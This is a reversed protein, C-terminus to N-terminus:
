ERIHKSFVSYAESVIKQVEEAGASANRDPHFKLSLRRYAKKVEGIKTNVDTGLVYYAWTLEGNSGEGIKSKWDAYPLPSDGAKEPDWTLTKGRKTRSGGSMSNVFDSFSGEAETGGPRTRYTRGGEDDRRAFSQAEASNVRNVKEETQTAFVAGIFGETNGSGNDFANRAGYGSFVDQYDNSKATIHISGDSNFRLDGGAFIKRGGALRLMQPKLNNGHAMKPCIKLQGDETIVWMYELNPDRFNKLVYNPHLSSFVDITNASNGGTSEFEHILNDIDPFRRRVTADIALWSINNMTELPTAAAILSRNLNQGREFSAFGFLPLKMREALRRTEIELPTLTDIFEIEANEASHFGSREITRTEEVTLEVIHRVRTGNKTEGSTYEALITIGRPDPHQHIDLIRGPVMESKGNPKFWFFRRDGRNSIELMEGNATAMTKQLARVIFNRAEDMTKTNKVMMDVVMTKTSESYQGPASLDLYKDALARPDSPVEAGSFSRIAPTQSANRAGFGNGILKPDDKPIVITVTTFDGLDTQKFKLDQYNARPIEAARHFQKSGDKIMTLEHFKESSVVINTPVKQVVELCRKTDTRVAYAALPFTMIVLLALRLTYRRLEM